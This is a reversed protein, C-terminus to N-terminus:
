HYLGGSAKFVAALQQALAGDALTAEFAERPRALQGVWSRTEEHWRRWAVASQAPRPLPCAVGMGHLLTDIGEAGWLPDSYPFSDVVGPNASLPGRHQYLAVLEEHEGLVVAERCHRWFPTQPGRNFRFHLALFFRLYDWWGNVKRNLLPALGHEPSDFPNARMLLGLQRILLHLSTSELPEVFGYANGLAAVNGALFCERRGPTFLIRRTAGLEPYRARLEAEAEADSAFASCYVYGVHREHAQPIEWCWGHNMAIARTYPLLEAAGPVAGVLARDTFLSDAFSTYKVGMVKSILQAQFGSCDLFFDAGHRQGGDDVLAELGPRQPDRVVDVIARDLVEVGRAAAQEGLYRALRPNDLHYAMEPLALWRGGGEQRHFPVQGSAMMMAQPNAFDLSGGHVVAELLHLPGFPYSFPAGHPNWDFRIGLKLTPQVDRYFTAPDLQLEGHLFQPMSPTTAEGVGIIPLASNHILTVPRSPEKAKLALAALFGATGGGLICVRGLRESIAHGASRVFRQSLERQSDLAAGLMASGSATPLGSGIPCDRRRCQHSAITRGDAEMRWGQYFDTQREAALLELTEAIKGFARQLALPSLTLEQQLRGLTRLTTQPDGLSGAYPEARFCALCASAGALTPPGLLLQGAEGSLCLSPVCLRLSQRQVQFAARLPLGDPLMLLLELGALSEPRPDGILLTPTPWARESCFSLWREVAAGGGWLGLRPWRPVPAPELRLLDGVMAALFAPVDEEHYDRALRQAIEAVTRRDDVEALVRALDVAAIGQRYSSGRAGRVLVRGDDLQLIQVGPVKFVRQDDRLKM